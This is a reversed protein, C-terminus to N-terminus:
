SAEFPTVCVTEDFDLSGVAAEFADHAEARLRDREALAEAIAGEPEHWDLYRRVHEERVTELRPLHRRRRRESEINRRSTERRQDIGTYIM